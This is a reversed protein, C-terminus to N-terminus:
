AGDLIYLEGHCLIMFPTLADPTNVFEQFGHPYIYIYIKRERGKENSLRGSFNIKTGDIQSNTQCLTSLSTFIFGWKRNEQYSPPQLPPPENANQPPQSRPAWHGQANVHLCPHPRLYHLNRAFSVASLQSTGCCNRARGACRCSRRSLLHCPPPPSLSISHNKFTLATFSALPSLAM